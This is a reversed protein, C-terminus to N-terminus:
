WARRSWSSFNPGSLRVDGMGAARLTAAYEGGHRIDVLALRGPAKLVRVIERVAQDRGAADYINHLAWSSM